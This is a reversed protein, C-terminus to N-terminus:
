IQNKYFADCNRDWPNNHNHDPIIIRYVMTDSHVAKTRRVVLPITVVETLVYHDSLRLGDKIKLGIDNLIYKALKPEINLNIELELSDYDDLGHTHYTMPTDKDSVMHIVWTVESEKNEKM